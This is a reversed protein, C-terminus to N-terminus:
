LPLKRLQSLDNLEWMSIPMSPAKTPSVSNGVEASWRLEVVRPEPASFKWIEFRLEPALKLFLTFETAATSTSRHQLSKSALMQTFADQAAKLPPATSM